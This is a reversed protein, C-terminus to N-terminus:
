LGLTYVMNTNRWFVLEKEEETMSLQQVASLYEKQNYLPFDTGFLCRKYDGVFMRFDGMVQKFMDIENQQITQYEGFYGSLDVYVHENKAVVAAADMIWPNGAHCLVIKLKPFRNAVEDANLPHSQKLLGKSGQALVGTHFAVPKNNKQCYEYLPDLKKDFWNYDEYGAYLKVGYIQNKSLHEILTDLQKQNLHEWDINGVPKLQPYRKSVEISEKITLGERTGRNNALLVAYNIGAEKMSAVLEEVTTNHNNFQGIHTHADIIM